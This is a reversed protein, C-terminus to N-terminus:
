MSGKIGYLNILYQIAQSNNKALGSAIIRQLILEQTETLRVGLSKTKQEKM